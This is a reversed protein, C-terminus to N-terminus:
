RDTRAPRAPGSATSPRRHRSRRSRTTRSSSTSFIGEAASPVSPSCSASGPAEAAGRRAASGPSPPAAVIGEPAFGAPVAPAGAAAGLLVTASGASGAVLLNDRCDGERAVVRPTYESTRTEDFTRGLASVYYDIASTTPLPKPLLVSRCGGAAVMDVFYWHPTGDARFHVRARSLDESPAFCADLRPFVGAVICSVARHEIAPGAAYSGDATALLAATVLAWRSRRQTRM